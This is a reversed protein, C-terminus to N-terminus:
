HAPATFHFINILLPLFEVVFLFAAIILAINARSNDVREKDESKVSSTAVNTKELAIVRDVIEQHRKDWSEVAAILKADAAKMASDYEVRTMTKSLIDNAMGRLENVGEFRKEAATEAKLIAKESAAFSQDVLAKAAAFRESYRGDRESNVRDVTEFRDVISQELKKLWLTLHDRLSVEPGGDDLPEVSHATM